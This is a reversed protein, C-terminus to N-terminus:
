DSRAPSSRSCDESSAGVRECLDTVPPTALHDDIYGWDDHDRPGHGGASYNLTNPRRAYNMVSPYEDIPVDYTDIGPAVGPRLGFSHGLEHILTVAGGCGVFNTTEINVGKHDASGSFVYHYGAREHDFHNAQVRYVDALRDVESSDLRDSFVLHLTVGREGNPNDVPATEFAHEVKELRDRSFNCGREYDVEVYIDM